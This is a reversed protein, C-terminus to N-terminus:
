VKENEMVWTQGIAELAIREPQSALATKFRELPEEVPEDSMVFTNWHIPLIAKANMHMSMEVAQEPNCHNRLWPEYTGIPMIALEVTLNREGIHRFYEHYATDGGFVIHRGNKSLLYANYSRGHWFGKSRDDEWPFRWGFHQVEIAEIEVGHVTAKEGWDLEVVTKRPTNELIDTTNKAMVVSIDGDFQEISPIDLHDMHGHSLLIIDIPPLEDVRLAPAFLRKPGVTTLGLLNVGVRESFVPDTIIRTGFFNILVTAHGIWAATITSNDWSKPEPRFPAEAMDHDALFGLWRSTRSKPDQALVTGPALLGAGLAGLFKRRTTM